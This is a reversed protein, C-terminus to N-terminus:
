LKIGLAAALEDNSPESLVTDGILIIPVRKKPGFGAQINYNVVQEALAPDASIDSYDFEIGHQQLFRKSRVCDGCWQTGYMHIKEM